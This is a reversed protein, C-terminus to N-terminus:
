CSLAEQLKRAVNSCFLVSFRVSFFRILFFILLFISEKSNYSNGLFLYFLLLRLPLSKANVQLLTCITQPCAVLNCCWTYLCVCVCVRAGFQVAINMVMFYYGTMKVIFKFMSKCQAFLILLFTSFDFQCNGLMHMCKARFFVPQLLNKCNQFKWSKQEFM